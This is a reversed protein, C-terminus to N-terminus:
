EHKVVESKDKRCRHHYHECDEQSHPICVIEDGDQFMEGCHFCGHVNVNEQCSGCRIGMEVANCITM